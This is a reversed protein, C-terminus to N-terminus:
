GRSETDRVDGEGEEEVEREERKSGRKTQTTGTDEM